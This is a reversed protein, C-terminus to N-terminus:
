FQVYIYYSQASFLGFVCSVKMRWRRQALHTYRVSDDCQQNSKDTNRENEQHEAARSVTGTM